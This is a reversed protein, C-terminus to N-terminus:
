VKFNEELYSVLTIPNGYYHDLMKQFYKIQAPQSHIDMRLDQPSPSTPEAILKRAEIDIPNLIIAAQLAEKIHYNDTYVKGFTNMNFFTMGTVYIEKVDYNLLNIIGLLGTNVTTGVEKCIKFVHGDSINQWPVGYEAELMNLPYEQRAIDWMSLMPCSIFKLNSLYEINSETFLAIMKHINLCSYLIDTRKGYDAWQSELMARNQNVRVVIDYSDILEGMGKGELHPSPCVYAIRKGKLIKALREDREYDKFESVFGKSGLDALQEEPTPHSAGLTTSDWPPCEDELKIGIINDKTDGWWKKM